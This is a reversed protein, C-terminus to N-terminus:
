EQIRAQLIGHVSFGVSSYNIPSCLTPYSQADAFVCVCVCLSLLLFCVKAQPFAQFARGQNLVVFLVLGCARSVSTTHTGTLQETTDLEKYGWPSCGQLSRQRHFKGSLFVPTTAIEKELPDERGLSQVWTEKIAPLKKVM